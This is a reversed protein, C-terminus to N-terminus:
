FPLRWVRVTNDDGGSVASREDPTFAVGNVREKHGAFERLVVGEPLAWIRVVGDDSGSLMRKGDKSVALARVPQALAPLERAKFTTRDWVRIVGDEGGSVFGSPTFAVARVESVTGAGQAILKKLPKADAVDWLVLNGEDDGTLAHKGAADFAAALVQANAGHETLERFTGEAVDWLRLDSRAASIIRKGDETMAVASLLRSHGSLAKDHKRLDTGDFLHIDLEFPSQRNGGATAILSGNPTAALCTGPSTLPKMRAENTDPTWINLTRDKSVSLVTFRDKRNIVAVDMVPGSHAKTRAMEGVLALRVTMPEKPLVVFTSPMPERGEIPKASRVNYDGPALSVATDRSLDVLQEFGDRTLIVKGVDADAVFEVRVPPVPTPVKSGFAAWAGVGGLVAAAAVGIM